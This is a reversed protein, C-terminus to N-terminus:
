SCFARSHVNPLTHTNFARVSICHARARLSRTIGKGTNKDDYDSYHISGVFYAVGGRQADNFAVKMLQMNILQLQPFDSCSSKYGTNTVQGEWTTGPVLYNGPSEYNNHMHPLIPGHNASAAFCATGFPLNIKKSWIGTQPFTKKVLVTSGVHVDIQAGVSIQYGINTTFKFQSNAGKNSGVGSNTHNVNPAPLQPASSTSGCEYSTGEDMVFELFTKLGFSPGGIYEIEFIAMPTVHLVLNAQGAQRIHGLEGTNTFSQVSIPQMGGSPDWKIGYKIDGQTFYSANLAAEFNASM